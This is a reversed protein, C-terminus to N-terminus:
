ASMSAYAGSPVYSETRTRQFLKPVLPALRHRDGAPAHGKARTRPGVAGAVRRHVDRRRRPPPVSAGRGRPTRERTAAGPPGSRCPTRIDLCGSGPRRRRARTCRRSTPCRPGSAGGVQHRTPHDVAGARLKANGRRDPTEAVRCLRLHLWRPRGHRLRSAVPRGEVTPLPARLASAPGTVQPLVSAM